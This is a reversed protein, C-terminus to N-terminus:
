GNVELRLGMPDFFFVQTLGTRELKVESYEISFKDLRAKLAAMTDTHFALHDLYGSGRAALQEAEAESVISLHVLPLDGQYLWRGDSNSLPRFGERWDFVQGYFNLVADLRHVPVRLNFHNFSLM